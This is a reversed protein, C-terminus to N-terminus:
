RAQVLASLPRCGPQLLQAPGEDLGPDGPSRATLELPGAAAAQTVAGAVRAGLRAEMEERLWAPAAGWEVRRGTAPPASGEGDM